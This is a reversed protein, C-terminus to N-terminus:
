SEVRVHAASGDIVNGAPFLQYTNGKKKRYIMGLEHAFYLAYRVKEPDHDPFFPYIKSQLIGPHREAVQAARTAIDRVLPDVAAFETMDRKFAAKDEASAGKGVMGYAVKQRALREADIDGPLDSQARAAAEGARMDADVAHVRETVARIGETEGVARRTAALERVVVDMAARRATMGAAADFAAIAANLRNMATEVDRRKGYYSATWVLWAAVLFVLLVVGGSEM